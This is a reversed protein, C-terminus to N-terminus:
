GGDRTKQSPRCIELVTKKKKCDGRGGEKASEGQERRGERPLANKGRHALPFIWHRVILRKKKQGCPPEKKKKERGNVKRNVKGGGLPRNIKQSREGKKIRIKIEAKGRM